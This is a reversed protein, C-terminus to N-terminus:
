VSDIWSKTSLSCHASYLETDGKRIVIPIYPAFSLFDLNRVWCIVCALLSKCMIKKGFEFYGSSILYLWRVVSHRQRPKLKWITRGIDCVEKVNPIGLFQPAFEGCQYHASFCVKNECLSKFRKLRMLFGEKFVISRDVIEVVNVISFHCEKM